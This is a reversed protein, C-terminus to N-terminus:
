KKIQELQNGLDETMKVNEVYEKAAGIALEHAKDKEFQASELERQASNLYQRQTIASESQDALELQKEASRQHGAKRVEPEVSMIAMARAQDPDLVRGEEGPYVPYDPSYGHDTSLTSPDVPTNESGNGAPTTIPPQESM